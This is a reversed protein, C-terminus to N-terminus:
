MQRQTSKVFPEDDDDDSESLCLLVASNMRCSLSQGNFEPVLGGIAAEEEEDEVEEVDANERRGDFKLSAKRREM